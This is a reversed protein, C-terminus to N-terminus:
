TEAITLFSRHHGGLERDADGPYDEVQRVAARELRLPLHHASQQAADSGLELHRRRLDALKVAPLHSLEGDRGDAAVPAVSVLHERGDEGVDLRM